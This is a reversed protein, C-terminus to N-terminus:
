KNRDRNTQGDSSICRLNVVVTATTYKRHKVPTCEPTGSEAYPHDWIFECKMNTRRRKEKKALTFHALFYFTLKNSPYRQSGDTWQFIEILIAHKAVTNEATNSCHIGFKLTACVHAPLSVNIKESKIKEHILYNQFFFDM